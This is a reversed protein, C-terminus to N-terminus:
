LLLKPNMVADFNDGTIGNHTVGILADSNKISHKTKLTVNQPSFAPIMGGSSITKYPLLRIGKLETTDIATIPEPITKVNSPLIAECASYRCVIVPRGTLFDTLANGSDLLAKLRVTKGNNTIEVQCLADTEGNKDMIFRIIRILLYSIATFFLLIPFPIEFYPYGNMYVMNMPAVFLWLAAMLGAFIFNVLLYFVVHKLFARLSGYGYVLLVIILCVAIKLLISLVFPMNEWLILLSSCAGFVGAVIIRKYSSQTHLLIDTALLLIFTIYFNIVILIDVYIISM